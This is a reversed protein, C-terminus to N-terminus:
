AAAKAKRRRWAHGIGLLGAVAAPVVTSPEPTYTLSTLQQTGGHFDVSNLFVTGAVPSVPRVDALSLTPNDETQFDLAFHVGNDVLLAYLDVTVKFENKYVYIKTVDYANALENVFSSVPLTTGYLVLSGFPPDSPIYYGPGNPMWSGTDFSYYGSFASHHDAGVGSSAFDLTLLQGADARGLTSLGLVAAAAGVWRSVKKM